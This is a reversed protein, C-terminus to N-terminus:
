FILEIECRNSQFIKPENGSKNKWKQIKCAISSHMNKSIFGPASLATTEWPHVGSHPNVTFSLICTEAGRATGLERGFDNHWDLGVPMWSFESEEVSEGTSM